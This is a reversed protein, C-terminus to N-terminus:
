RWNSVMWWRPKQWPIGMLECFTRLQENWTSEVAISTIEAPSGRWATTKSKKVCVFPMPCDCSCHSDVECPEAEILKRKAEWYASFLEENSEYEVTPAATGKKAAFADEWDTSGDEEEDGIGIFEDWEGEDAHFGYFLIADTSQGM